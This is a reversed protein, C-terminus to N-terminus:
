AAKRTFLTEFEEPTRYGLASHLRKSNYVQEIFMPLRTAVDAFTEYGARYVEEVKLTKMFSEAQANHYPNGVSSMSGRLGAAKLGHRLCTLIAVSSEHSDSGGRLIAANGAKLSLGGADATVNPRSEYIIGIVGLPVRVRQIKLGNPRTWEALVTGVPDDLAAIAELGKAIGEVRAPDLMLRDIYSAPKGAEEAAAIDRANAELIATTHKRLEAATTRLAEDKAERPAIGLETAVVGSGGFTPYCTIGIKLKRDM